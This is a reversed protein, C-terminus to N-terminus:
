SSPALLEEETWFATPEDPYDFLIIEQESRDLMLAATRNKNITATLLTPKDARYRMMFPLKAAIQRDLSWSFGFMNIPGCRRYITIQEPLAEFVMRDEYSIM